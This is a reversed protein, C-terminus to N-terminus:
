GMGMPPPPPPPPAAKTTDSKPADPKPPIPKLSSKTPIQKPEPVPEPKPPIPKLEPKPIITKEPAPKSTATKEPIPKLTVQKSPIVKEPATKEPASKTETSKGTNLGFKKNLPRKTENEQETPETTLKPTETTKTIEPEPKTATEIKQIQKPSQISKNSNQKPLPTKIPVKEDTTEVVKTQTQPKQNLIDKSPEKTAEKSVQKSAQKSTEKSIEKPIEKPIEKSIEKSSNKSLDKRVDNQIKSNQSVSKNPDPPPTAQEVSKNTVVSAKKSFPNRPPAFKAHTAPIAPKEVPANKASIQRTLPPKVVPAPTPKTPVAVPKSSEDKAPAITAIHTPQFNEHIIYM